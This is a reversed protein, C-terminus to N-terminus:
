RSCTGLEYECWFASPESVWWVYWAIETDSNGIVINLKSFGHTRQQKYWVDEGRYPRGLWGALVNSADRNLM